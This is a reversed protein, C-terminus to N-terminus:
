DEGTIIAGLCVSVDGKVKPDNFQILDVLIGAGALAPTIDAM